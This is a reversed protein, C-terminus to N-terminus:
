SVKFLLFNLDMNHKTVKHGWLSYGALSRQGHPNELCTFQLLNGHGRGPSRGLGPILGLDINALDLVKISIFISVEFDHYHFFDLMHFFHSNDSNLFTPWM